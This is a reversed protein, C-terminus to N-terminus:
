FINTIIIMSTIIVIIIGILLSVTTLSLTVKQIKPKAQIRLRDREWRMIMIIEMNDDSWEREGENGGKAIENWQFIVYKLLTNVVNM